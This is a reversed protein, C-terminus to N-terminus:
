RAESPRTKRAPWSMVSLDGAALARRPMARVKWFRRIKSFM